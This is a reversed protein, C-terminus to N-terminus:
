CRCPPSSRGSFRRSACTGPRREVDRVRGLAVDGVAPGALALNANYPAVLSFAVPIEAVPDETLSVRVTDGIGEELLVGIGLASKIRADEGDGAETVGLHLPYDMAEEAMRRVLLRYAELVVLPNSAKMSLVLEPLRLGECIRVFELASEVMGVPTDGFRNMIRDSLSGHNTGIRMAVGEEKCRRVLPTFATHIRALEAAYDAETYERKAFKKKDAFNGPNVRIKEVHPV